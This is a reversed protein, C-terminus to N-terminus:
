PLVSPSAPERCCPLNQRGLPMVELAQPLFSTGFPSGHRLTLTSCLGRGRSMWSSCQVWVSLIKLVLSAEPGLPCCFRASLFFATLDQLCM